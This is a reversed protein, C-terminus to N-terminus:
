PIVKFTLKQPSPFVPTGPSPLPFCFYNPDWVAVILQVFVTLRTKWFILPFNAKEILKLSHLTPSSLWFYAIFIYIFLTLVSLNLHVDKSLLLWLSSTANPNNLIIEVNGFSLCFSSACFAVLIKCSFQFQVRWKISCPRAYMFIKNM